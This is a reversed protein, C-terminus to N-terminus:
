IYSVLKEITYDDIFISVQITNVYKEKEPKYKEM